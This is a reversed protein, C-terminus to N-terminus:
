IAQALCLRAAVGVLADHRGVNRVLRAVPSGRVHLSLAAARTSSFYLILHGIHAAVGIYQVTHLEVSRMSTHMAHPDICALIYDLISDIKRVIVVLM